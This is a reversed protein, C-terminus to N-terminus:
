APRIGKPADEVQGGLAGFVDLFEPFSTVIESAGEITVAGRARTALVAFAMAIRHDGAAHVEGGSVAGGTVSLGDAFEEVVVGLRSLSSALARIRDSEKIRLEGAGRIRSTGRAATAAIVWAPIEDIMRPIDEPPVDWATLAEPGTVTVEGVPEGAEEKKLVREVKAGMRELADLLGTRTPNLGVGEATVAAGPHAAAAALFFAAASLDGPVRLGVGCPKAPGALSRRVRGAPDPAGRWIPVGFAPLMRETHDRALGLEVTTTGTAGLGALLVCSAVQASDMPLAYHIARLNGGRIWLPPLRDHQARLVAGMERLPTMIRDVPRRQLSADGGLIAVFPQTALVGALLRLATGSNGCDLDVPGRLSMARGRITIREAERTVGAGLKELCDLTAACDAGRNPAEVVTTGEAIGGLLYARHTISKDGPPRFRGKLGRGPHVTFRSPTMRTV